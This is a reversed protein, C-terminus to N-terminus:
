TNSFKSGPRGHMSEPAYPANDLSSLQIELTVDPTEFWFAFSVILITDTVPGVERNVIRM